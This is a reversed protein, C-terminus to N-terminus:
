RKEQQNTKASLSSILTDPCDVGLYFTKVGQMEHNLVLKINPVGSFNFRRSHKSRKIFHQNTDISEVNSFAIEVTNYLGYRIILKEGKIAIPRKSMARYEAFFFVLSLVTLATVVNAATASWLFHLVLHVIPLEFLIVLLFGLANSHAGDKNHYSFYQDGQYQETSIRHGYFLFLWMRTEFILIKSVVGNGIKNTITSEVAVDPDQKNKLISAIAIYITIFASIEFALFLALLVYRGLTLDALIIQEQDPIIQTAVLVAICIYASAKTTAEKKSEICLYCLIPLVILADLLYFWEFNAKGFDNLPHEFSYYVGWFLSIFVLFFFPIHHKITRTKQVKNGRSFQNTQLVLSVM